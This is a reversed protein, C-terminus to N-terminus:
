KILVAPSSPISGPSKALAQFQSLINIVLTSYGNNERPISYTNDDLADMTSFTKGNKNRNVVFLAYRNSENTKKAITDETPLLTVLYPPNALQADTVQGLFDYINKVSRFAFTTQPEKAPNPNSNALPQCLLDSGYNKIVDNRFQNQKICLKFEPASKIIQYTAVQSNNSPKNAPILKMGHGALLNVYGAGYNKELQAVTMPQGEYTENLISQVNLGYSLLQYMVKQFEPYEARLPNNFFKKEQGDPYSVAIEDVVMSFIVERPIHNHLFYKAADLQIPTLFPKWFSSNDLSSQSFNFSNGVQMSLSPTVLGLAGSLPSAVFPGTNGFTALAGPITVISGTGTINPMDLFSLPHDLSARIINTFILDIQYQELVNAYKKSMASFDPTIPTTCGSLLIAALVGIKLLKKPNKLFISMSLYSLLFIYEFYILLMTKTSQWYNADFM